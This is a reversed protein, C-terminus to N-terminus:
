NLCTDASDKLGLLMPLPFISGGGTEWSRYGRRWLILDGFRSAIRSRTKNNVRRYGGQCWIDKPLREGDDPECINLVAELLLRGLERVLNWLSLEFNMLSTASLRTQLFM